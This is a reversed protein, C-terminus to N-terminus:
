GIPLMTDKAEFYQLSELRIGHQSSHAHSLLDINVDSVAALSVTGTPFSFCALQMSQFLRVHPRIQLLIPILRYLTMLKCMVKSM